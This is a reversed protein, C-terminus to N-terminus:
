RVFLMKKSQIAGGATLRSFYVGTSLVGANWSVRHSGASRYENVLVAVERGLVDFVKLNVWGSHPVTFPIMTSPNFPNPYNQFLTLIEPHEGGVLEAHVVIADTGGAEKYRAVFEQLYANATMNDHVILTNENNANEAASTWNHSGTIVVQPLDTREADIIAYKHHLLSSAPDLRVDVGASTLVTFQSGTDTGNDLVGRVKVGANKREILASAIDSRTLTLMSINISHGAGKVVDIIRGTTRDSPSFYSEVLMGNIMFLHPTNDRKRFGFRANGPDPSDGESGWMEAFELTFAGALAQDQIEVVNQFDDNTGPDTPNWSGTWVWIKDPAGGRFDFVFFKNHHLGAGGNTADFDDAIWPIGSPTIIQNMTTGTGASLNDREVIMRVKVGRGKARILAEAISQGVTGSLSYLAADISHQAADIRRLVAELFNTNARAPAFRQVSADVSKNFSVNVQGTSGQSATSVVRNGTVSTDNGSVSFAQVQYITAPSLGSLVVSQTTSSSTDGAIGLEYSTTRGYRVFGSAPTETAWNLRLSNQTIYSEKPAVTIRPGKGHPTIDEVSRPLIQYTSFFQGLVGAMDFAGFPVPANALNIRGSIRTQVQGTADSLIYNTGSGTANWAAAPQGNIGTVSTISNIRVLRAEYPEASGQGMIETATLFLTDVPNGGSGKDLLLCPTLEFLDNFPAVMGLLEVDDGQVVNSSVSADFVAIGATTDQLYSPGGFENGVTVVGRVVVWKNLLRHVRNGTKEKVSAMSRPSGHVLTKPQAQIPLFSSGDIGSQLDFSWEDTSDDATVASITVLLSDPSRVGFGSLTITDQSFSLLATAPMTAVNANSWHLEVPRRFRFARLTDAGPFFVIMITTPNDYKWRVPSVKATGPEFVPGSPPEEGSTSNQPNIASQAVFDNANDNTDWGNGSKAEAGGTALSVATSTASAKREISTTNSPPDASGSGEFKNANTGYGVFDVVMPDAPNTIAVTDSVLVVKGASQGLALANSPSADSTPLPTTGGTTGQALRILFYRKPQITGSFVAKLSFATTSTASQYQLSWDTMVIPSGTPNYLEVFDHTYTSGSNGGGGYVESMVVHTSSQGYLLAHGLSFLFVVRCTIRM